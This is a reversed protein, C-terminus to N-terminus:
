LDRLLTRLKKPYQRRLAQWRAEQANHGVRSTILRWSEAVNRLAREPTVERALAVSLWYSLKEFYANRRALYLDPIAESMAKRHEGLFGKGYTEIISPNSYHNERFPDFFSDAQAVADASVPGSVAHRAFAHALEPVPSQRTVVYSWGWNFYSLPIRDEGFAACPLRAPLVRGRMASGSANLSKQTGGWGVNAYIDGQQYRDWNGFFGLHAGTLHEASAIMDELAKVGADGDIQPTMDASFPWVGEAHFRMWWEWVAYIDTRFLCGGYMGEDPRHFFAMQRDLSRWDLPVQLAEGFRDEYQAKHVSNTLFDKHYFMMYVDGDTQYGWRHGDFMDGTSYLSQITQGSQGPRTAIDELPRIAGNEALDPIGFTAPLAVDIGHAQTLAELALMANINDLDTVVLAAPCGYAADFSSLVPALNAQSGNPALIKLPRGLAAAQAAMDTLAYGATPLIAAAATQLMMQRRNPM